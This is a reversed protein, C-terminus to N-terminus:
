QTTRPVSLFTAFTCYRSQSYQAAGRFWEDLTALWSVGSADIVDAVQEGESDRM